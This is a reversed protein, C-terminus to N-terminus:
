PDTVPPSDRPSVLRYRCQGKKHETKPRRSHCRQVPCGAPVQLQRKIGGKLPLKRQAARVKGEKERSWAAVRRRDESTSRCTTVQRLTPNTSRTSSCNVRPPQGPNLLAAQALWLGSLRDCGNVETLRDREIVPGPRNANM